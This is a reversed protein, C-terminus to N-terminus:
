PEKVIKMINRAESNVVFQQKSLLHRPLSLLIKMWLFALCQKLM